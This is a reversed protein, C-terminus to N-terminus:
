EAFAFDRVVAMHQMVVSQDSDNLQAPAIDALPTYVRTDVVLGTPFTQAGIVVPIELADLGPDALVWDYRKTRNENTHPNGLNDVPWPETVRFIDDLEPYLLDTTDDTNFDGGLVVLDEPEAVETIGDIIAAGEGPHSSANTHLHVSIAILDGPGPMDIRAWFLERNSVHPDDWIGSELIPYRSVVGNPLFGAGGVPERAWECDEGCIADAFDRMAAANNAGYTMEQVLIIDADVGQLIRIGHGPDYSQNNGSTLNSAVIRVRTGDPGGGAGSGGDGGGGGSGTADGGAGTTGGGDGGSGGTGTADGGQGGGGQAGGTGAGGGGQEGGGPGVQTSTGGGGQAAGSSSSPAEGGSGQSSTTGTASQTQTGSSTTTPDGGAGSSTSGDDDGCAVLALILSSLWVGGPTRVFPM